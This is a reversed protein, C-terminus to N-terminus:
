LEIPGAVFSVMTGPISFTLPTASYLFEREDVVLLTGRYNGVLDSRFEVVAGMDMLIQPLQSRGSNLGADLPLEMTVSVQRQLAQVLENGVPVLALAETRLYVCRRAGQLLRIVAQDRGAQSIVTRAERRRGRVSGCGTIGCVGLSVVLGVAAISRILNM